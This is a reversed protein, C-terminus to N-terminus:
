GGCDPYRGRGRGRVDGPVEGPSVAGLVGGGLHPNSKPRGIGGLAGGVFSRHRVIGGGGEALWATFDNEAGDYICHPELSTVKQATHVAVMVMEAYQRFATSDETLAFYWQM